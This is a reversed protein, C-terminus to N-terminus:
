NETLQEPLVDFRTNGRVTEVHWPEETDFTIIETGNANQRRKVVQGAIVGEQPYISEADLHLDTVIPVKEHFIGNLGWADRLRCELWGPQDDSIYRVISVKVALM